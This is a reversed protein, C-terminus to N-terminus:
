KPVALKTPKWGPPPDIRERKALTAASSLDDNFAEWESPTLFRKVCDDTEWEEWLAEVPTRDKHVDDRAIHCVEHYAILRLAQCSMAHIMDYRIYITFDYLPARLVWAIAKMPVKTNAQPAEHNPVVQVYLQETVGLSRAARSVENTYAFDGPCLAPTAALTAALLTLIM